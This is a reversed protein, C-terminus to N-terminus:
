DSDHTREAEAGAPQQRQHHAQIDCGARGLARDADDHRDLECRGLLAAHHALRQLSILHPRNVFSRRRGSQGRPLAERCGEAGASEGLRSRLSQQSRGGRHVCGRGRAKAGIQVLHMEMPFHKGYRYTREPQPLSVPHAPLGGRGPSHRPAPTISRSPTVTTSETRSTTTTRSASNPPRFPPGCNQRRVAHRGPSTLQRSTEAKAAPRSNRVSNAGTRQVAPERTIGSPRRPSPCQPRPARRRPPAPTAAAPPAEGVPGGCGVLVLAIAATAGTAVQRYDISNTRSM